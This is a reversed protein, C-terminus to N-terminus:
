HDIDEIKSDAITEVFSNGFILAPTQFGATSEGAIVRRAAEVSALVTFTYGNVTHLVTNRVAGDQGTVIVAAHYPHLARQELTPGDPLTAMEEETPFVGEDVCVYTRVTPTKLSKWITILDPLPISFCNAAGKGDQFNFQTSPFPEDQYVLSGNVRQISRTMNTASVASGRSVTGSVKLALDIATPATIHQVAYGALCGLMAVSGGCGPLLMVGAAKAEADRTEALRYSDIEAAIDLYHIGQRICAAILREATQVFPGACNLLVRVGKLHHDIIEIDELDFTRSPVGLSSALPILKSSTRGAVVFDLGHESAIESIMRGTYGTAGYILLDAM